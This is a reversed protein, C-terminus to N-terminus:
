WGDAKVLVVYDTSVAPIAVEEGGAVRRAFVRFQVLDMTDNRWLGTVGTDVLGAASWFLSAGDDTAMVYINAHPYGANVKFAITTSNGPASLRRTGIWHAGAVLPPIDDFTNDATGDFDYYVPFDREVPRDFFYAPNGANSSTLQQVIATPDPQAQDGGSGAFYIAAADTHGEGDSVVVQNMGRRMTVPWYFVNDVQHGDPQAYSGNDRTGADVGNLVLRLRRRNSYVKVGNNAAGRRLWYTQSTIHVVPLKPRLFSQFLYFADKRHYGDYSLLGSDNVGHPRGDLLFDREAWWTFLPIQDARTRFVTELISEEIPGLYEEPEFSGLRRTAAAYDTHHSIVSRGGTESVYHYAAADPDFAWPVSGYWGEYLNYGVFDLSADRFSGDASAYTVLRTPDDQRVAAAYREIGAAAGQAAEVENGVSFFVISPHNLNQRVMERTIREGTDSNVATGSQGNEAWVLIGREDALDYELQAHPYHALRVFNIGLEQLRDWDDTLEADSMATRSRESEQHKNVGRLPTPAGNLLFAAPTLSYSRLGTRTLVEDRVVGYVSVDTLVRYLYPDVTSWLHPMALHASLSSTGRAGAALQTDGSIEVAVKGDASLVRHSVHLMAAGLSANRLTTRFNLDAHDVTVNAQVITVGSTAYDTPDIHIADTKLLWVKRYIGGYPDYYRRSYAQSPLCDSTNLDTNDVMVALVNEGGFRVADTADFV